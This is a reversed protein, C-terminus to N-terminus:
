LFSLFSSMFQSIVMMFYHLPFTSVDLFINGSCLAWTTCRPMQPLLGFAMQHCWTNTPTAWVSYLRREVRPLGMCAHHHHLGNPFQVQCPRWSFGWLLYLININCHTPCLVRTIYIIFMLEPADINSIRSKKKFFDKDGRYELRNLHISDCSNNTWIYSLSFYIQRISSFLIQHFIVIM